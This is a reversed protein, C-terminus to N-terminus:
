KKDKDIEEIAQALKELPKSLFNEEDDIQSDPNVLKEIARAPVNIIRIPISLLKGILKM